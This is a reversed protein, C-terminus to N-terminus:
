ILGISSIFLTDTPPTGWTIYSKIDILLKKSFDTLDIIIVGFNEVGLYLYSNKDDRTIKTNGVKLTTVIFTSIQFFM